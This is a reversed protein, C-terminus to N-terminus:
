HQGRDNLPCGHRINSAVESEQHETFCGADISCVPWESCLLCSGSRHNRCPTWSCEPDSTWMSIRAGSRSPMSTRWRSGRMWFLNSVRTTTLPEPSCAGLVFGSEVDGLDTTLYFYVAPGGGDYSFNEFKLTNDDKITVTGEVAHFITQLDAQWGVMVAAHLAPSALMLLTLFLFARM